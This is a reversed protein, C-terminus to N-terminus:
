NGCCQYAFCFLDNVNCSITCIYAKVYYEGKRKSIEFGDNHIEELVENDATTFGGGRSDGDGLWAGFTYAPIPVDKHTYQLPRTNNVSHNYKTKPHSLSSILERMTRVEPKKKGKNRKLRSDYNDTLWLHDKDCVVKTGDDFTVKYCKLYHIPSVYKVKTPEGYENFVYDGVIIDEMTKFGDVTPIITDLSLGKGGYGSGGALLSHVNNNQEENLCYLIPIAQKPYPTFPIYPNKLITHYYILKQRDTINDLYDLDLEM